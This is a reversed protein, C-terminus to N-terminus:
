DPMFSSEPISIICEDDEWVDLFYGKYETYGQRKCEKICNWLSKSSYITVSMFCDNLNLGIEFHLKM